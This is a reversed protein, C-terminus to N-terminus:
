VCSGSSGSCFTIAANSRGGLKSRIKLVLGPCRRSVDMRQELPYVHYRDGLYSEPHKCRYKQAFVSLNRSSTGAQLSAPGPYVAELGMERMHRAVAKHNVRMGELQLQKTIKRYGYFPSETYIQDIRHKLAIEEESPPVPQYYLSSRNLSLLEAQTSM